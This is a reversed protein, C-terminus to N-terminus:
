DEKNSLAEIFKIQIHNQTKFFSDLEFDQPNFELVISVLPPYENSPKDFGTNVKPPLQYFVVTASVPQQIDNITLVGNINFPKAVLAMDHIEAPTKEMDANFYVPFPLHSFCSDERENLVIREKGFIKFWLKSEASNIGVVADKVTIECVSDRYITLLHAPSNVLVGQNQAQTLISTLLTITAAIINKPFNKM